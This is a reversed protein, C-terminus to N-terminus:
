RAVGRRMATEDVFAACESAATTPDSQAAIWQARMQATERAIQTVRPALTADTREMEEQLMETAEELDRATIRKRILINRAADMGVLLFTPLIM